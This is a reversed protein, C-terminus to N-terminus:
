RSWTLRRKRCMPQLRWCGTSRAVWRSSCAMASHWSSRQGALLFLGGVFPLRDDPYVLGAKIQPWQGHARPRWPPLRRDHAHREGRVMARDDPADREVSPQKQLHSFWGICRLRDDPKHPYEQAFDVALHQDDPIAGGDMFALRDFVKQREPRGLAQM